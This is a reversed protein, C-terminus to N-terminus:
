KLAPAICTFNEPEDTSGSGTYRAEMPYPCVPRRMKSGSADIRDPAAGNEVWNVLAPLGDFRTLGTGGGCHAMGPIMFLRYFEDANHKGGHRKEWDLVAKRYNIAEGPPVLWDAWGHYVLLKHGLKWFESLDPNTANLTRGLKAELTKFSRDFDFTHWDWDAGFTWKFLPNFPPPAPKGPPPGFRGWDLESGAPVGPYIQKKTRPNVPGAYVRSVAEVQAPTLCDNSDAEKCLLSAPDFRCNRPDAILGDKLGDATDCAALVASALALMKAAPLYSAADRQTVAFNWLISSHVGTRNNAAAGGLIGDYDGPFRQAEMLAQEGGTSCGSFYSHKPVSQYFAKVLLKSVVTMEHTARYGWDAWREPHGTYIGADTNPPTSLGMDTNAVAYGQKVGGALAGYGIRGAYGGNGTGQFRSNWGSEPMWLEIKIDSDSSPTLTAAIRCFRPLGNIPAGYPPPFTGTTILEAVTVRANPLKIQALSECTSATAASVACLLFFASCRILSM